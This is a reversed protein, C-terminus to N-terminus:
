GMPETHEWFLYNTQKPHDTQELWLAMPRSPLLRSTAKPFALLNDGHLLIQLIRQKRRQLTGLINALLLLSPTRPRALSVLQPRM